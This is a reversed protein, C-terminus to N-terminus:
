RFVLDYSAPLVSSTAGRFDVVVADSVGFGPRAAMLRCQRESPIAIVYSGGGDTLVTCIADGTHEDLLIVTTAPLTRGAADLVRGGIHIMREAGQEPGLKSVVTTVPPARTFSPRHLPVTVVFYVPAVFRDSTNLATWTEPVRSFGEAPSVRLPFEHDRHDEPWRAYLVKGPDLVRSPRLPIADNLTLAASYLLEGLSRTSSPKAFLLYHCDLRFHGFGPPDEGTKNRLKANERLEVLCLKFEAQSGSDFMSQQGSVAPVPTVLSVGVGTGNALLEILLQHVLDLTFPLADAM